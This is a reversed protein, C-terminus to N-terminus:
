STPVAPVTAPNNPRVNTNGNSQGIPPVTGNNPMIGSPSVKTLGLESIKENEKKRQELAEQWDLGRDAYVESLTTTQNNLRIEEASADRSPDSSPRRSFGWTHWLQNMNIASQIMPNLKGLEILFHKFLWNLVRIILQLKDYKLREEYGRYDLQASSYNYRSSDGAIIGFPMDLCRGIERLVLNVFMEQSQMPHKADFQTADWGDPLTLLTGRNLEVEKFATTQAPEVASSTTKMVGAFMAAFEAATLTALGYRRLQAFLNLCSHLECVGRYQGPRRPQVWQRMYTSSIPPVNSRILGSYGGVEAEVPAVNYSVPRGTKVDVNVGDDNYIGTKPDLQGQGWGGPDIVRGPGLINFGLAYGTEMGVEDDTFVYPFSEGAIRRTEDMLRLKAPLNVEYSESWKTWEEEVYTKLAPNDAMVRLKPATYGIVDTAITSITGQCYSNNDYEHQCRIRLRRRTERNNEISPPKDTAQSWHRRTEDTWLAADYKAKLLVSAKAQLKELKREIKKAKKGM